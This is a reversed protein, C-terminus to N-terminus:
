ALGKEKVYAFSDSINEHLGVQKPKMGIALGLLQTFYIIKVNSKLGLKEAARIQHM